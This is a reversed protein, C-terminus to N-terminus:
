RLIGASFYLCYVSVNLGEPIGCSYLNLESSQSLMYCKQIERESNRSLYHTPNRVVFYPTGHCILLPRHESKSYLGKGFASKAVKLVRV